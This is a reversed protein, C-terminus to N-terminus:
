MRQSAFVMKHTRAWYKSKVKQLICKQKRLVYPVWWSFAPADDVKREEEYIALEVPYLEKLDKLAVWDTSGDRWEVLLEWGRTTTKRQKVVYSNVYTGESKSIVDHVVRHDVIASLMM